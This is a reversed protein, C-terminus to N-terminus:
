SIWLSSELDARPEKLDTGESSTVGSRPPSRVPGPGVDVGFSM